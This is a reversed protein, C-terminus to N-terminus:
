ALTFRQGVFYDSDALQSELYDYHAVLKQLAKQVAAEDCPLGMSKALVRNFFVTFTALPGVEYDGYKEFWRIRAAEEATNGCLALTNPYKDELYACIVAS